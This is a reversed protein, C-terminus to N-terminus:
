PQPVISWASKVTWTENASPRGPETRLYVLINRCMVKTQYRDQWPTASLGVRSPLEFVIDVVGAHRKVRVRRVDDIPEVTLPIWQDQKQVLIELPPLQDKVPLGLFVPISEFWDTLSDVGDGRLNTAVQIRDDQLTFRRTYSIKGALLAQGKIKRSPITGEVEVSAPLSEFSSTVKLDRCRATSVYHGDITKATVAHVPWLPAEGYHDPNNTGQAGARRGLIVPGADSTGLASLTGGGLGHFTSGSEGGVPGAHLITTYRSTKATFIVGGFNRLYTEKRASYPLLLPSQENRLQILRDLFKESLLASVVTPHSTWHAESWPAQTFKGEAELSRNLYGVLQRPAQTHRATGFIAWSDHNLMGLAPLAEDTMSAAALNRPLWNWQDVAADGSTRPSFHSPGFYGGGVEPLVMHARLRYAKEMTQRYHPWDKLAAGWTLMYLSIGNYTVDFYGLDRFYGAPHFQRPNTVLGLTIEEATKQLQQDEPFIKCVMPLSVLAFLDMDTMVGTPGWKKLRDVMRRLGTEYAACVDAPLLDRSQLYGWALWILTGSLFDSRALRNEDHARELMILDVANCVFTRLKLARSGLYPNGPFDWTAYWAFSTADPRGRQGEPNGPIYVQGDRDISSLTFQEAPIRISKPDPSTYPSSLLFLRYLETKSYEAQPATFRQVDVKLDEATLTALYSVLRRQHAHDQPLATRLPRRDAPLGRGAVPSLNAFLPRQRSNRVEGRLYLSNWNLPNRVQPSLKSLGLDVPGLVQAFDREGRSLNRVYLRATGDGAGATFDVVLRLRFWHQMLDRERLPATFSAGFEPLRVAFKGQQFGFVPGIGQVKPSANGLERGLGFYADNNLHPAVDFEITARDDDPSHVPLNVGPAFPRGFQGQCRVARANEPHAANDALEILADPRRSYVQLWGKLNAPEPQGFAHSGFKYVGADPAAGGQVSSGMVSALAGAMVMLLGL